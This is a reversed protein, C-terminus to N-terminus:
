NYNPISSSELQKTDQVEYNTKLYREFEEDDERLGLMLSNKPMFINKEIPARVDLQKYNPNITVPIQMVSIPEVVSKYSNSILGEDVDLNRQQLNTGVTLQQGQM